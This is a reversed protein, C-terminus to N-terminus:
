FTGRLTMGFPSPLVVASVGDPAAEPRNRHFDTFFALVVTGTAVVASSILMVDTATALGEVHARDAESVTLSQPPGADLRADIESRAGLAGLGLFTGALATATTAAVGTWFYAPHLGEYDQGAPVMVVSLAVEGGRAVNVERDVSRFGPAKVQIRHRGPELLLRDTSAVDRRGDVWVEYEHLPGSGQMGVSLLVSALRSELGRLREQVL